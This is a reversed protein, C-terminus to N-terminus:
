LKSVIFPTTTPQPSGGAPEISIAMAAANGIPGPRIYVATSDALPQFIGSPVPNGGAPIVWMEFTRGAELRPLHAAIFVVGKNASVFFRGRAVTDGFAVDKTVPDNLVSLVEDFRATATASDNTKKVRGPIAISALVVALVAAVAWPLWVAAWSRSEKQPAVMSIVRTRLRRPPDVAKVAGCMASVTSLASRVGPVCQPCSRNLHAAIESRDPDEAIGLAYPGYEDKLEDCTV